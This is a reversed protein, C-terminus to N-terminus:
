AHEDPPSPRESAGREPAPIMRASAPQVLTGFDADLQEFVAAQAGRDSFKVLDMAGLLRRARDLELATLEGALNDVIERTTRASAPWPRTDDLYRRYVDSLERALDEPRLDTRARLRRWERRARADASEPPPPAPPPRLRRAAWVLSAAFAAIGAVAAVVWPWRGPAPPELPVLDELPGATPGEVGIDFFLRVAAGDAGPVDVVYSGPQGRLEYVTSGDDGTSRQTVRLTDMAPLETGTPVHLLVPEGAQVRAQEIWTGPGTVTPLAGQGCAVLLWTLLASV